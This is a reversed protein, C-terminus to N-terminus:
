TGSGARRSCTRRPFLRDYRALSLRGRLAMAERLLASGLRQALEAAVPATFFMWAHM